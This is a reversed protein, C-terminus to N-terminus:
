TQMWRSHTVRSEPAAPRAATAEVRECERELSLGMSILAQLAAFSYVRADLAEGRAGKKRRWERVPVGRAYSTVLAESLLQEFYDVSRDASFLSFGPGPETIKLRGYITSKASDVGM